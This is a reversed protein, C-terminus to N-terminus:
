DIFRRTLTEAHHLLSSIRDPQATKTSIHTYTRQEETKINTITLVCNIVPGGFM